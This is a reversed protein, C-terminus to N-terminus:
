AGGQRSLTFTGSDRGSRYQLTITRLPSGINDLRGSASFHTIQNAEDKLDTEITVAWQGSDLVVEGVDMTTPGPNSIGTIKSGDWVLILTLFQNNGWEGQWTGSLPHGEQASLPLTFSCLLTLALLRKMLTM